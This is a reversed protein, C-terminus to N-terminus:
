SFYVVKSVFLIMRKGTVSVFRMGKKITRFLKSVCSVKKRMFIAANSNKYTDLFMVKNQRYSESTAKMEGEM